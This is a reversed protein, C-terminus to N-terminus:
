KGAAAKQSHLPAKSRGGNWLDFEPAAYKAFFEELRKRLAERLEAYAVDDYLNRQEGPDTALDYLEHPGDPHRLILKAQKTRVARVTEFEFFMVDDWDAPREGRLARSVTAAHVGAAKAVDDITVPM